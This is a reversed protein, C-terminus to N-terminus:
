VKGRSMIDGLHGDCREMLQCVHGQNSYCKGVLTM